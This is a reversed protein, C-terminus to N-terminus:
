INKDAAEEPWNLPLGAGQWAHIGGALNYVNNYGNNVLEKSATQSMNGSRCYVLVPTDKNQPFDKLRSGVENFPIFVDTETLHEQEPTHVDVLFVNDTERLLALAENASLDTFSSTQYKEEPENHLKSNNIAFRWMGIFLAILGFFILKNKM